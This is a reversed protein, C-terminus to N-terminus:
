RSSTMLRRFRVHRGRQRLGNKESGHERVIESSDEFSYDASGVGIAVEYHFVMKRRSFAGLTSARVLTGM